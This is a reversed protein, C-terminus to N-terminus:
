RNTAPQFPRVPHNLSVKLIHFGETGEVGEGYATTLQIYGIISGNAKRRLEAFRVGLHGGGTFNEHVEVLTSSSRVAEEEQLPAKFRLKHDRGNDSDGGNTITSTVVRQKKLEEINVVLHDIFRGTYEFPIRYVSTIPPLAWPIWQLPQTGDFSFHSIKDFRNSDDQIGCIFYEERHTFRNRWWIIECPHIEPKSGHDEDLDMVWPGYVGIIKGVLPSPQNEQRVGFGTRVTKLKPFWETDYLNEDPTIEAQICKQNRNNIKCTTWNSTSGVLSLVQDYLPEYDRDPVINLNWDYEPGDGNYVSFHVLRGCLSMKKGNVPQFGDNAKAKVYSIDENSPNFAWLGESSSKVFEFQRIDEESALPLSRSEIVTDEPLQNKGSFGPGFSFPVLSLLCLLSRNV